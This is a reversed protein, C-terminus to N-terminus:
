NMVHVVSFRAYQQLPPLLDFLLSDMAALGPRLRSFAPVGRSLMALLEFGRWSYSGFHQGFLEIDKVKLPKDTGKEPHKNNYSLNDRVFELLPNHGLPDQFSGRGGPRLLRSLEVGARDLQLHHIAAGGFILDFSDDAFPLSEAPGCHISVRDAVGHMEAMQMVKELALPSVDVAVVEAGALAFMVPTPSHGCCVDLLHRDRVDGLFDYVDRRWASKSSWDRLQLPRYHELDIAAARADTIEAEMRVRDTLELNDIEETAVRRNRQIM